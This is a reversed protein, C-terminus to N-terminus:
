LNIITKKNVKIPKNLGKPKIRYIGSTMNGMQIVETCDVPLRITKKHHPGAKGQPEVVPEPIMNDKETSSDKETVEESESYPTTSTAQSIQTTLPLPTTLNLPKVVHDDSSNSCSQSDNKCIKLPKEVHKFGSHSRPFTTQNGRQNRVMFTSNLMVELIRKHDKQLSKLSSKLKHHHTTKNITKSMKRVKKKIHESRENMDKVANSIEAVGHALQGHEKRIVEIKDAIQRLETLLINLENHLERDDDDRQFGKAMESKTRNEFHIGKSKVSQHGSSTQTSPLTAPLPDGGAGENGLCLLALAVATTLVAQGLVGGAGLFMKVLQTEKQALLAHGAGLNRPFAAGM